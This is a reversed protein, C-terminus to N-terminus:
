KKPPFGALAQKFNSLAHELGAIASQISQRSLKRRALDTEIGGLSRDAVAKGETVLERLDPVRPPM